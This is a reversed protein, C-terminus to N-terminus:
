TWAVLSWRRLAAGSDRRLEDLNGLAVLLVGSTGSPTKKNFGHGSRDRTELEGASM